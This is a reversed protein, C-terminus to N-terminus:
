PVLPLDRIQVAIGSGDPARAVLASGAFGRKLYGLAAWTDLGFSWAASTIEGAIRGPEDPPHL